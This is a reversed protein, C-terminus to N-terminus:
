HDTTEGSQRRFVDVAASAVEALMEARAANVRDVPIRLGAAVEETGQGRQFHREAIAVKLFDDIIMRRLGADEVVVRACAADFDLGADLGARIVATGTDHLRDEEASLGGTVRGDQDGSM